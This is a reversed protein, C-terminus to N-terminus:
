YKKKKKLTLSHAGRKKAQADGLGQRSSSTELCLILRISRVGRQERVERWYGKRLELTSGEVNKGSDLPAEAQPRTKKTVGNRLNEMLLKM